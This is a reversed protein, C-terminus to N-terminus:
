QIVRVRHQNHAACLLRLNGPDDSGGEALPIIHDIQLTRRAACREPTEAQDPHSASFECQGKARNWVRRRTAPDIPKRKPTSAPPSVQNGNFANSKTETSAGSATPKSTAMDFTTINESRHPQESGSSPAVEDQTAPKKEGKRPTESEQESETSFRKKRQRQLEEDILKGILEPSPTQMGNQCILSKLQDIKELLINPVIWRVESLEPSIRRIREGLLVQAKDSANALIARDLDRSSMPEAKEVWEFQEQKTLPAGSKAEANFFTQLKAAKSLSLKGSALKEGTEPINRMLHMAHIRRHAGGDSLGLYHVAFEHLSSYNRALHVGRRECELLHSILISTWYREKQIARKARALLDKETLEELRISKESLSADDPTSNTKETAM